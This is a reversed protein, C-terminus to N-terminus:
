KLIVKRIHRHIVRIITNKPTFSEISVAKNYRNVFGYYNNDQQFKTKAVSSLDNTLTKQNKKDDIYECTIKTIM